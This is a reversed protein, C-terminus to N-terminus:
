PQTLPGRSETPEAPASASPTASAGPVASNAAGASEGGGNFSNGLLLLVALLLVAVGIGPATRLLGPLADVLRTYADGLGGALTVSDSRALCVFAALVAVVIAPIFSVVVLSVGWRARYEGGRAAILAPSADAPTDPGAIAQALFFLAVGVAGAVGLAIGGTLLSLPARPPDDATTEGTTGSAADDEGSERLSPEDVLISRQETLDVM